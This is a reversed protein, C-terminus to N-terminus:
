AKEKLRYCGSEEDHHADKMNYLCQYLVNRFNSSGTKYGTALVKESLEALSYGKKNKSLLDHVVDRLSVSNKMRKGRKGKKAAAAAPAMALNASAVTSGSVSGSGHVSAIQEDLAALQAQLAERKDLLQSLAGKKEALLQELQAVTLEMGAKAM